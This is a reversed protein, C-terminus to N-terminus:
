GLRNRRRQRNKTKRQSEGVIVGGDDGSMKIKSANKSVEGLTGPICSLQFDSSERGFAGNVVRRNIKAQVVAKKNTTSQRGQKRRSNKESFKRTRIARKELTKKNPSPVENGNMEAEVDVDVVM